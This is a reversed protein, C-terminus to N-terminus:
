RRKTAIADGGAASEEDNRNSEGYGENTDGRLLPFLSV